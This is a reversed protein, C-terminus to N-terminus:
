GDGNIVADILHLNGLTVLKSIYQILFLALFIDAKPYGQCKGTNLMNQLKM